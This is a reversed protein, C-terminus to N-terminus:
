IIGWVVCTSNISKELNFLLLFIQNRSIRQIRGYREAQSNVGLRTEKEPSKQFATIEMVLKEVGSGVIQIGYICLFLM